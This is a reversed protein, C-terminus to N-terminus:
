SSRRSIIQRQDLSEGIINMDVAVLTTHVNWAGDGDYIHSMTPTSTLVFANNFHRQVCLLHVGLRSLVNRREAGSYISDGTLSQEPQICSGGLM